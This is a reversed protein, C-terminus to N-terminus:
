ATDDQISIVAPAGGLNCRGDTITYGTGLDQETGAVCTLDSTIGLDTTNLTKQGGGSIFLPFNIVCDSVDLGDAGDSKFAMIVKWDKKLILNCRPVFSWKDATLNALVGDPSGGASIIGESRFRHTLHRQGNSEVAYVKIEGNEIASAM